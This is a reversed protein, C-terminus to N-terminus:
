AGFVGVENVVLRTMFAKTNTRSAHQVSRFYDWIEFSTAADLRSLAHLPDSHRRLEYLYTNRIQRIMATRLAVSERLEIFRNDVHTRLARQLPAMEGYLEDRHEILAVTRELLDINTDISILRTHMTLAQRTMAEKYLAHMDTFHHFVTRVVVQARAAVQQARPEVVGEGLLEILADLIRDHTHRARVNRTRSSVANTM